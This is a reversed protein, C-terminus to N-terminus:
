VDVATPLKICTVGDDCSGDTDVVDDTVAIGDGIAAESVVEDVANSVAAEMEVVEVLVLEAM